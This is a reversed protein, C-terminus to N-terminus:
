PELLYFIQRFGASSYYAPVGDPPGWLRPNFVAPATTATVHGDGWLANLAAPQRGSERHAVKSYSYILDTMVSRTARLEATKTAFKTWTPDSSYVRQDSQPLYTYSGRVCYGGTDPFRSVHWRENKVYREYTFAEATISPCYFSRKKLLYSKTYLRGQNTPYGLNAPLGERNPGLFLVCSMAGGRVTRGWGPYGPPMIRDNNDAAYSFMGLGMQKLNNKCVTLNASGKARSLAPLLMAALIAIIAIVVLLEIL